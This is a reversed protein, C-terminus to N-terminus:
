FVGVDYSSVQCPRQASLVSLLRHLQQDQQQQWDNKKQPHTHAGGSRVGAAPVERRRVCADHRTGPAADIDRAEGCPTGHRM